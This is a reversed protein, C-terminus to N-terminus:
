SPIIQMELHIPPHIQCALLPVILLHWDDRRCGQPLTELVGAPGWGVREVSVSSCDASAPDKVHGLTAAACLWTCGVM